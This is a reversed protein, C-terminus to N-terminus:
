LLGPAECCLDVFGSSHACARPAAAASACLGQHLLAAPPQLLAAAAPAPAAATAYACLAAPARQWPRQAPPFAKQATGQAPLKLMKYSYALMLVLGTAVIHPSQLHVCRLQALACNPCAYDLFLQRLERASLKVFQRHAASLLFNRGALM